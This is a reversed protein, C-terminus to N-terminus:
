HSFGSSGTIPISSGELGGACGLFVAAKTNGLTAQSIGISALETALYSPSDLGSTGM